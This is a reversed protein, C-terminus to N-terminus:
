SRGGFPDGGNTRHNKTLETRKFLEKDSVRRLKLEKVNFIRCRGKSDKLPEVRLFKGLHNEVAL